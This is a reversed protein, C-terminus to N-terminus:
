KLTLKVITQGYSLDVLLVAGYLGFFLADEGDPSRSALYPAPVSEPHCGSALLTM